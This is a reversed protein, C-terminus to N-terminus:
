YSILKALSYVGYLNALCHVVVGIRWDKKAM